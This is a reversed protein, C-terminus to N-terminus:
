LGWGFWVGVVWGKIGIRTGGWGSIHAPPPTPVKFIVSGQSKQKAGANTYSSITRACTRKCACSRTGIGMYVTYAHLARHARAHARAQAEAEGSPVGCACARQGVRVFICMSMGMSIREPLAGSLELEEFNGDPLDRRRTHANTDCQADRGRPHEHLRGSVRTCM